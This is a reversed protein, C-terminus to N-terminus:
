RRSRRPHLRRRQPARTAPSRPRSLSRGAPGRSHLPRSGPTSRSRAPAPGASGQAWPTGARQTLPRVRAWAHLCDVWDRSASTARSWGAPCPSACLVRQPPAGDARSALGGVVVNTDVVCPRRVRRRRVDVKDCTRLTNSQPHFPIGGEPFRLHERGVEELRLPQECPHDGHMAHLLDNFFGFAKRNFFARHDDVRQQARDVWRQGVDLAFPHLDGLATEGFPSGTLYLSDGPTLHEGPDAATEAWSRRM